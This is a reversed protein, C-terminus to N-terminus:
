NRKMVRYKIVQNMWNSGYKKQWTRNTVYYQTLSNRTLEIPERLGKTLYPANCLVPDYSQDRGYWNLQNGYDKKDPVTGPTRYTVYYQTISRIGYWNLQNVHDKQWIRANCLLVTDNSQGRGYWNFQNGYDKQWTRIVYYKKVTFLFTIVMPPALFKEQHPLLTASNRVEPAIKGVPPVNQRIKALIIAKKWNDSPSLPPAFSRAPPAFAGQGEM